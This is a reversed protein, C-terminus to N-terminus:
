PLQNTLWALLDHVNRWVTRRWILNSLYFSTKYFSIAETSFHTLGPHSTHRRNVICRFIAGGPARSFAALTMEGTCNEVHCPFSTTLLGNQRCWFYVDVDSQTFLHFFNWPNALDAISIDTINDVKRERYSGVSKRPGSM